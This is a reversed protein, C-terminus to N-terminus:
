NNFGYFLEEIISVMFLQVLLHLHVRAIHSFFHALLVVAEPLFFGFFICEAAEPLFFGFSVVAPRRDPM